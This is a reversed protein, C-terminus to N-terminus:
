ALFARKTSAFAGVGDQRGDISHITLQGDIGASLNRVNRPLAGTIWRYDPQNLRAHGELVDGPSIRKQEESAVLQASVKKLTGCHADASITRLDLTLLTLPEGSKGMLRKPFDTM